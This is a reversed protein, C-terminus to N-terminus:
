QGLNVCFKMTDIGDAYDSLTPHQAQGFAINQGYGVSCQLAQTSLTNTLMRLDDYYTFHVVSLPPPLRTSKCLLFTGCDMFPIRGMSFAIKQYLYNNQFSHHQQLETFLDTCSEAAAYLPNFDYGKPVYLMSVNRCGLGFYRFMDEFLHKLNDPTEQGNLVAVSNRHGRFIHLKNSFYTEFHSQTLQSGTAIIADFHPLINSEFRIADAFEPQIAILLQSLWTILQQDKHSPKVIIRHNALLVCLFDHFGVLPINGAMVVAVDKPREYQSLPYTQVWPLLTEVNLWQTIAQLAFRQNQITFWPNEAKARQMVEQLVPSETALYQSIVKGLNVFDDFRQQNKM